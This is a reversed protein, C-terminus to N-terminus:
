QLLIYVFYVCKWKFHPFLDSDRQSVCRLFVCRSVFSCDHIPSICGLLSLFTDVFLIYAFLFVACLHWFRFLHINMLNRRRRRHTRKKGKWKTVNKKPSTTKKNRIAACVCSDCGLFLLILALSFSIFCLSYRLLSRRSFKTCLSFYLVINLYLPIWRWFQHLLFPWNYIGTTAKTFAVPSAVTTAETITAAACRSHLLQM